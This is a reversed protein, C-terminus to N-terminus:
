GVPSDKSSILTTWASEDYLDGVGLQGVTWQEWERLLALAGLRGTADLHEALMDCHLALRLEFDQPDDPICLRVQELHCRVVDHPLNLLISTLCATFYRRYHPMWLDVSFDISLEYLGELTGYKVLLPLGEELMVDITDQPTRGWSPEDIPMPPQPRINPIRFGFGYSVYDRPECLLQVFWEIWRQGKPEGGHPEFAFGCLVHQVPRRILATGRREFHDFAQPLSRYFRALNANPRKGLM